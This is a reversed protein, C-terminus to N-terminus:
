VYRSCVGIVCGDCVHVGGVGKVCMGMMVCMCVM